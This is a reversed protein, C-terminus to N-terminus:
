ISEDIDEVAPACRWCDSFQAALREGCHPCTWFSSERTSCQLEQEILARAALTDGPYQIWLEPWCETFPIEGLAGWLRDNRIFAAIGAAQLVNRLHAVVIISEASYLKRMDGGGTFSPSLM